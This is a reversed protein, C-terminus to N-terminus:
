QKDDVKTCIIQNSFEVNIRSYKNWGVKNLGKQYFKKVRNLKSEFDDPKGLFIIHDGVRPVLEIEKGRLVNLQETQANWFKNNQLFLAFQYLENMAFQKDIYGTAIALHAVCKTDRPMIEGRNDIYYNDGNRSIVRLIPIRQTVEINLKGNPTKYCEVENILPHGALINEVDESVIENMKKGVPYLDNKKLLATIEKPTVFGANISDRIILEISECKQDSSKSNFATVALLLYCGVLVLISLLITKKIM